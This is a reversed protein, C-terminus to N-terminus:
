RIDLQAVLGQPNEDKFNLNSHVTYCFLSM